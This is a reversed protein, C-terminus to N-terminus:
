DKTPCEDPSYGVVLQDSCASCDSAYTKRAGDKMQACVPDYQMTCIEPRPETCVTYVGATDAQADTEPAKACGALSSIVVATTAFLALPRKM